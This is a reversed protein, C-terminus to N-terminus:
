FWYSNLSCPDNMTTHFVIQFTLNFAWSPCYLSGLVHLVFCEKLLMAKFM